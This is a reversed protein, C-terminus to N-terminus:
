AQTAQHTQCPASSYLHLVKSVSLQTTWPPHGPMVYKVTIPSSKGLISTSDLVSLGNWSDDTLTLRPTTKLIPTANDIVYQRRESRYFLFGLNCKGCSSIADFNAQSSAHMAKCKDPLACALYETHLDGDRYEDVLKWTRKPGILLPTLADAEAGVFILRKGDDPLYDDLMKRTLLMQDLLEPREKALQREIYQVRAGLELGCDITIEM